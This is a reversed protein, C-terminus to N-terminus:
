SERMEDRLVKFFADRARRELWPAHGCEKLLHFRFDKVVNSLPVEVGDRPHPDDDGHIAAVPCVIRRGLALLGGSRRLEAAERWVGQFVDGRPGVRDSERAISPDTDYSQTKEVLEGFRALLAGKDPSGPLSLAKELFDLEEREEQHLRVLRTKRLREVYAEEFPGSGVLILKRVLWPCRAALIWGLWAGWSHGIVILPAAGRGELAAGLEEVQGELTAATQIPELVGWEGALERAVPAM